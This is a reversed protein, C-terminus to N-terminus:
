MSAARVWTAPTLLGLLRSDLLRVSACAGCQPSASPLRSPIRWDFMFNRHDFVVKGIEDGALANM